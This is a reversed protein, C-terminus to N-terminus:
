RGNNIKEVLQRRFELLNDRSPGPATRAIRTDLRALVSQRTHGAAIVADVLKEFEPTVAVQATQTPDSSVKM